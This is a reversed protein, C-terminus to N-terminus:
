LKRVMLFEKLLTGDELRTANPIASVTEFGMKEYLGIARHNGEIVELELQMLGWSQAIRILETLMATGIGLGWYEKLLAIAIRGRHRIRRRPSRSIQCSGVLKGDVMCAIMVDTESDRRKQLFAEEEELPMMAREEPTCLLFPTEGASKVLYQLM